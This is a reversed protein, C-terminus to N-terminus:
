SPNNLSDAIHPIYHLINFFNDSHLNSSNPIHPSIPHGRVTQLQQIQHSRSDICTGLRSKLVDLKDTIAAYGSTCTFMFLKNKDDDAAVVATKPKAKMRQRPGQGEKCGGHLYCDPKGHGRRKCNDCIIDLKLKDRRKGKSKGQKKTHAAM